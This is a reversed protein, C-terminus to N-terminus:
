FFGLTGQIDWIEGIECVERSFWEMLDWGNCWHCLKGVIVCFRNEGIDAMEWVEGLFGIVCIEGIDCM